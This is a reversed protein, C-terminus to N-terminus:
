WCPQYHSNAVTFLVSGWLDITKVTEENKQGKTKWRKVDATDEVGHLLGFSVNRGNPRRGFRWQKRIGKCHGIWM